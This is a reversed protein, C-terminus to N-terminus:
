SALQQMGMGSCPADLLIRDFSPLFPKLKRGDHNTVFCNQVGMRALSAVLSNLRKKNCDNAVLVGSLYVASLLSAVLSNLRKKNCDNAVLVGTNKMLAAIYTTKGGPAACMDLVTENPQPLLALVPLFSAASQLMYMGSLYEPTAGIPVQSDYIKLGVKSWDGVPDVNVGRNILAQALDRRRAKLSNVRITMPRPAENAELFELAEAPSFMHLFREILEPLYGYYSALDEVLCSVYEARSTEANRNEKFNSLVYVVDQIRQHIADMDPAATAERERDEETPLRFVKQEKLADQREAEAELEEQAQGKALARAQKEVPLEDDVEDEDEEGEENQEEEDASANGGAVDDDEEDEDQFMPMKKKPQREEDEDSSEDASMFNKNQATISGKEGADGGMDKRKRICPHINRGYNEVNQAVTEM